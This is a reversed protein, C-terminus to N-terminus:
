GSVFSHEGQRSLEIVRLARSIALAHSGLAGPLAQALACVADFAATEGVQTGDHVAKTGEPALIYSFSFSLTKSAGLLPLLLSLM